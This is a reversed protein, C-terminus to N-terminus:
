TGGGYPNAAWTDIPEMGTPAATADIVPMDGYRDLQTGIAVPALDADIWSLFVPQEWPVPKGDVGKIPTTKGYIPKYFEVMAYRSAGDKGLIKAAQKDSMNDTGNSLGDGIDAIHQNKFRDVLKLVIEKYAAISHYNPDQYSAVMAALEFDDLKTPAVAAIHVALPALQEEFVTCFDAAAADEKSVGAPRHAAASLKTKLNRNLQNVTNTLIRPNIKAVARAFGLPLEYGLGITLPAGGKAAVEASARFAVLSGSFLGLAGEAGLLVTAVATWVSASAATTTLLETRVDNIAAHFNGMAAGAVDGLVSLLRTRQTDSLWCDEDDPHRDCATGKDVVPVGTTKGPVIPRDHLESTGARKRKELLDSGGGM